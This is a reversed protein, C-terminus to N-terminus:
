KRNSLEYDKITVPVAFSGVLEDYCEECIRFMHLELDKKSFFEWEKEVYLYDKFEPIQKGCKNCVM